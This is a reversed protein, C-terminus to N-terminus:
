EQPFYSNLKKVVEPIDSLATKVTSIEMEDGYYNIRNRLKRYRDFNASIKDEKLVDKLFYTIAEHSHFKFGKLFGIAECYQRLGEYLERFVSKSTTENLPMSRATKIAQIASKSLSKARAKNVGGLRVYGEKISREFNM